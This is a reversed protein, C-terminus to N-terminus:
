WVSSFCEKESHFEKLKEMWEENLPGWFHKDLFLNVNAKNVIYKILHTGDSDLELVDRAYDIINKYGYLNKITLLFSQGLGKTIIFDLFLSLIKEKKDNM